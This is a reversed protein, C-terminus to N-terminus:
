AKAKKERMEKLKEVRQLLHAKTRFMGGKAHAYLVRYEAPTIEGRDRLKRLLRRLARIRIMWSVKRPMRATKKGKRSGQGRRRGRKKQMKIHKARVTSVGQKPLAVIKGERILRRIDDKTIAQAVEDLHAPDIWVRHIGCKLIQAAMRRQTRLNM